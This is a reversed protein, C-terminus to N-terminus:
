YKGNDGEYYDITKIKEHGNKSLTHGIVCVDIEDGLNYKQLALWRDIDVDLSSDYKVKNLEPHIELLHNVLSPKLIQVTIANILPDVFVYKYLDFVENYDDILSMGTIISLVTELKFKKQKNSM